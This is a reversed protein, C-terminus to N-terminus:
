FTVSKFRIEVNSPTENLCCMMGAGIHAVSFIMASNIKGLSVHGYFLYLLGTVPRSHGM